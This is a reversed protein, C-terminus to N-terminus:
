SYCTNFMNIVLWVHNSYEFIDLCCFDLCTPLNEHLNLDVKHFNPKSALQLGNNRNSRQLRREISAGWSSVKTTENWAVNRSSLTMSSWGTWDVYILKWSNYQNTWLANVLVLDFLILGLPAWAENWHWVLGTRHSEAQAFYRIFCNWPVIPHVGLLTGM